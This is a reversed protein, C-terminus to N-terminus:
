RSVLAALAMAAQAHATLAELAARPGIAPRRSAELVSLVGVVKGDGDRLPAV